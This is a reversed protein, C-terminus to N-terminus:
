SFLRMVGEHHLWLAITAMSLAGLMACFDQQMDWVGHRRALRVQVGYSLIVAAAQGALAGGLGAMYAGAILGLMHLVARIAQLWFFGRADGAALAARDYSMGILQLLVVCSVMVVVPGALAYRDDYLLSVLWPGALALVLVLAMLSSTFFARFRRLRALNESSETPPMDRYISIMLRELVTMGLMRPFSGIMLGIGFVGLMDLTVFHGLVLRDGQSIAFACATSLFIWKGFHILESAASREIQLRDVHGPMFVHLAIVRITESLIMGFVLAWVSRLVYALAVILVLAVAQAGLNVMTVRQMRLHRSATDQRTPRFGAVILSIAAVPLFVALEPLDYFRAIPQAIACAILRLVLGRLVHITWATNLFEPDDGRQSRQIAPAVGVDSFLQLGVLVATVLAMMGFAEPFLLYALAINGILRLGETGFHGAATWVVSSGVRDRLRELGDSPISPTPRLRGIRMM